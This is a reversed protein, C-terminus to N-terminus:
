CVWESGKSRGALSRELLETESIPLQYVWGSFFKLYGM